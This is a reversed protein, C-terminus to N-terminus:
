SRVEGAAAGGSLWDVLPALRRLTSDDFSADERELEQWIEPTVAFADDTALIELIQPDGLVLNAVGSQGVPVDTIVLPRAGQDGGRASLAASGVGHRVAGGVTLETVDLAASGGARALARLFDRLADVRPAHAEMSVSRDIRIESISPAVAAGADRRRRGVWAGLLEPITGGGSAPEPAPAVTRRATPEAADSTGAPARAPFPAPTFAPGPAGDAEAPTLTWQGDTEVLRVLPASRHGSIDIQEVLYDRRAAPFSLTLDATAGGPFADGGAAAAVITVGGAAGGLPFAGDSASQRRLQAQLGEVELRLGADRPGMIAVHV